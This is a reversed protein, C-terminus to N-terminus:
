LVWGFALRTMLIRCQSPLFEVFRGMNRSAKEMREGDGLLQAMEIKEGDSADDCDENDSTHFSEKLGSL